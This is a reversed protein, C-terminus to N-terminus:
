NTILLKSVAVHSEQVVRIVYVGKNLSQLDIKLDHIGSSKWQSTALNRIFKGNANLLDIGVEGARNCNFRLTTSQTAPNPFLELSGHAGHFLVENETSTVFNISSRSDIGNDPMTCEDIYARFDCGEHAHFGPRLFIDDRAIYRARAGDEVENTAFVDDIAKHTINQGSTITKTVTKDFCDGQSNSCLLAAKAESAANIEIAAFQENELRDRCSGLSYSMLNRTDPTFADGNADTVTGTYNCSNDVWKDSGCRLNPDAATECFGDGATECNRGSGRTVLEDTIHDPSDPCNFPGHTHALGFYHGFEHPFTSEDVRAKKVYIRHISTGSGSPVLGGYMTNPNSASQLENMLYVNIMNDLDEVDALDKAEQTDVTDYASSVYTIIDDICYYFQVNASQYFANLDAMATEIVSNTLNFNGSPANMMHFQVPFYMVEAMAPKGSRKTQENRRMIAQREDYTKKIFQMNEETMEFDDEIERMNQARVNISISCLISIMLFAILQDKKIM